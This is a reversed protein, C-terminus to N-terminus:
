DADSKTQKEKTTSPDPFMAQLIAKAVPAANSAGHGANEIIVAIAIQPDKYPAFCVFWAHPLDHHVDEASGTKGAVQLWPFDVVRGTGSTVTARMGRRVWEVNQPDIGSSHSTIHAQEIIKGNLNQVDKLLHPKWWTGGNAITATVNAMQLPTALVDGQGISMNLTNGPYWYALDPRDANVRKRWAPDPILGSSEGPLDIGTEAGLGFQRAIQALYTPGSSEPNGLRLAANYFYVDCSDKIAGVINETGHVAWCGFFRGLRMGGTCYFTTTPTVAGKQLAAAATVMKFTSGPPFRSTIGRDIFPHRKNNALERYAANFQKRSMSFINPDYTPYSALALVEGNRPDIAVAAGTHGSNALAKEAAAQLRNDLSLQLTVGPKEVVEGMRRIPRSHADVEYLASGETGRLLSDYYREIGNKGIKDDYGLRIISPNEELAARNRKLDDQTVLGVHGLVHAALSGQPYDRQLDDTILIAPGLRPKNEEVRVITALPVNLAIRVPDYSNAGRNRADDLKEQIDATTVDLLFALSSLVKARQKSESKASPLAAPVVAISHSAKSTALVKGNRDLILGRPAPLPVKRMRNRQAQALYDDGHVIQLFWLRALLGAFCFVLIVMVAWVRRHLHQPEQINWGSDPHPKQSPSSYVM